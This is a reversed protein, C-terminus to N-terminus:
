AKQKNCELAKPIFKIIELRDTAFSNERIKLLTYRQCEVNLSHMGLMTILNMFDSIVKCQKIM